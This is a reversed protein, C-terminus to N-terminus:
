KGWGNMIRAVEHDMRQEFVASASDALGQRVTDNNLMQPISLGMLQHIANSGDATMTGTREFIGIHGSGPMRQVFAEKFPTSSQGKMVHAKSQVGPHVPKISGHVMTKILKKKTRVDKPAAGNFRHLPIETGRFEIEASYGAETPRNRVFINENARINAQSIDYKERIKKGSEKRLHSAARPLANRVARQVDKEVGNLLAKAREVSNGGFQEVKVYAM